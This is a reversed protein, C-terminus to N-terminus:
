KWKSIEKQPLKLKKPTTALLIIAILFTIMGLVSFTKQYGIAKAIFGVVAPGIIYALSGSSNCIGILHDRQHGMRKVIDSYVGNTLPYALSLLFSAVFVIVLVSISTLNFYLLALGLGAVLLIVEAAKKKGEYIGWKFIFIASFM